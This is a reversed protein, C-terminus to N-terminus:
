ISKMESILRSQRGQEPALQRLGEPDRQRRPVPRQPLHAFRQISNVSLHVCSLNHLIQIDPVDKFLCIFM